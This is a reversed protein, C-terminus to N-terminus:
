EAVDFVVARVLHSVLLQLCACVGNNLNEEWFQAAMLAGGPTHELRDLDSSVLRPFMISFITHVFCELDDAATFLYLGSNANGHGIHRLISTSAQRFAGAYMAREVVGSVGSQFHVACGFDILLVRQRSVNESSTPRTVRTPKSFLPFKFFCVVRM